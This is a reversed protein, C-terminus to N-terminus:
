GEQASAKEVYEEVGHLHAAMRARARDPHREVLAALIALHEAHAADSAGHERVARWLRSRFTRGVLHDVLAALPVNGSAQAILRHFTSDAAVIAEADPEDQALAQSAADLVDSLAALQADDIHRAAAAAAETELSRRVVCLDLDQDRTAVDALVGVPELIRHPDLSTVYTGDGQRTELIGLAALARVGERLSGRSVGLEAALDKEVPLRDGAGLAGTRILDRIGHIVTDTQPRRRQPLEVSAPMHELM